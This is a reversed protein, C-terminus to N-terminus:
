TATKKQKKCQFLSISAFCTEEFINTRILDYTLNSM